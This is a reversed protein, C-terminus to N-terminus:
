FPLSFIRCGPIFLCTDTLCYKLGSMCKGDFCAESDWVMCFSGKFAWMLEVNLLPVLVWWKLFCGLGKEMCDIWSHIEREWVVQAPDCGWVFDINVSSHWYLFLTYAPHSRLSLQIFCWVGRGREINLFNVKHRAKIWVPCVEIKWQLVCFNCHSTGLYHFIWM